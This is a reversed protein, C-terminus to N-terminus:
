CWTLKWKRWIPATRPQFVFVEAGAEDAGALKERIGGIAGVKGNPDITGTGAVAKGSLLDAETIKDYIALSFVLGASPGVVTSDIRYSVQPAYRYGLGVTIGAVPQSEAGASSVVSVNVAKEDRLVTFVVPDGVERDEVLAAVEEATSVATGDIAQIMDGPNLKENAPGSLVVSTVMPLETVALGAARLAAVTANDRSTDMAAVAEDEIQQDSKGPPYISDRPMADSDQALYAAIAEPLSVSSDVRSASVTTMVLSGTPDYTQLGDIEILPEDEVTALVDITQGPRWTVFPVPLLVLLAALAVFTVSSVVAVVNRSM